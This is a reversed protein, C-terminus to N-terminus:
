SNLFDHYSMQQIGAAEVPHTELVRDCYEEKVKSLIKMYKQLAEGQLIRQLAILRFGAQMATHKGKPKFYDLMMQRYILAFKRGSGMLTKVVGFRKSTLNSKDDKLNPDIKVKIEVHSGEADSDDDSGEDSSYCLRIPVKKLGSRQDGRPVGSNTSGTKESM